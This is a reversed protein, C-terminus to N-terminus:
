HLREISVDAVVLGHNDIPEGSVSEPIIVLRNRGISSSSQVREGPISIILVPPELARGGGSGYIAFRKVFYDDLAGSEPPNFYVKALYSSEPLEVFSIRVKCGDPPLTEPLEITLMSSSQPLLAPAVTPLPDSAAPSSDGVVTHVSCGLILLFSVACFLSFCYSIGKVMVFRGLILEIELM